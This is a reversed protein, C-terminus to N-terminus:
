YFVENTNILLLLPDFVNIDVYIDEYKCEIQTWHSIRQIFWFHFFWSIQSKLKELVTQQFSSMIGNEVQLNSCMETAAERWQRWWRWGAAGGRGGAEELCRRARRRKNWSRPPREAELMMLMSQKQPDLRFVSGPDTKSLSSGHEHHEKLRLMQYKYM